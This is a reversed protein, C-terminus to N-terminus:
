KWISLASLWPPPWRFAWSFCWGRGDLVSQVAVFVDDVTWTVFIFLIKCTGWSTFFSELAKEMSAGAREMFSGEFYAYQSDTSSTTSITPQLSRRKVGRATMSLCERWVFQKPFNWWVKVSIRWSGFRRLVCVGDCTQAHVSRQYYAHCPIPEDVPFHFNSPAINRSYVSQQIIEPQSSFPIPPSFPTFTLFFFGLVIM